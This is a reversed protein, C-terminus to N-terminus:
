TDKQDNYKQKTKLNTVNENLGEIRQWAYISKYTNTGRELSYKNFEKFREHYILDEKREM